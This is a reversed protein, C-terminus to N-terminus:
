HKRVKIYKKFKQLQKIQSPWLHIEQRKKAVKEIAIEVKDGKYIFYAALMTPARGHGNKCHIYIKIKQKVLSDITQVGVLLQKLSPPYHDKTPLWLFYDVGIPNDIREEELSIDGKIGKKLLEDKFHMVCCSNTGLYIYPTIKNYDFKIHKKM